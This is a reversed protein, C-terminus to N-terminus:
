QLHDMRFRRPSRGTIKKFSWSFSSLSEFGAVQCIETIPLASYQLLQEATKMRLRTLYQFPTCGFYVCFNRLLHNPSLMAADSLEELGIAESKYAHLYDRAVLLRRAIEQQTSTKAFPLTLAHSSARAETARLAHFLFFLDERLSLMPANQAISQKLQALRQRLGDDLDLTNLNFTYDSSLPNAPNDLLREDSRQFHQLVDAVLTADFFVIFTEAKFPSNVLVRYEQADNLILLRHEDVTLRRHEVEYMAEGKLAVKLSLPGVGKWDHFRASSNMIISSERTSAFLSGEPARKKQPDKHVFALM